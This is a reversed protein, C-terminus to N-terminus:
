DLYEEKKGEEELDNGTDEKYQEEWDKVYEELYKIEKKLLKIASLYPYQQSGYPSFNFVGHMRIFMAYFLSYNLYDEKFINMDGEYGEYLINIYTEFGGCKVFHYPTYNRYNEEVNYKKQLEEIEQYHKLLKHHYGVDDSEKSILNINVGYKEKIVNFFNYYKDWIVSLDDYTNWFYGHKKEKAIEIMADYVDQLEFIVCLSVGKLRNDDFEKMKELTHRMEETLDEGWMKDIFENMKSKRRNLVENFFKLIGPKTYHYHNEEETAALLEDYTKGNCESALNEIFNEIKMGSKEEILRTTESPVINEITGYDNYEGFIPLAIVEMYDTAYIPAEYDSKKSEVCLLAVTKAGCTIPLNSYFGQLNFCGM